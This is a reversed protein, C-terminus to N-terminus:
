PRFWDFLITSHHPSHLLSYGHVHVHMNLLTSLLKWKKLLQKLKVAYVMEEKVAQMFKEAFSNM